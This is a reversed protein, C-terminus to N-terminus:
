PLQLVRYFKKPGSGQQDFVTSNTNTALVPPGLNTWSNTALVTSFQVQYQVNSLSTWSIGVAPDIRAEPAVVEVVGYAWTDFTHLADAWQGAQPSGSPWM